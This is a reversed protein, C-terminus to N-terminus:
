KETWPPFNAVFGEPKQLHKIVSLNELLHYQHNPLPLFEIHHRGCLEWPKEQAEVAWVLLRLAQQSCGETLNSFCLPSSPNQVAATPTTNAARCCDAQNCRWVLTGEFGEGGWRGNQGSLPGRVSHNPYPVPLCVFPDVTTGDAGRTCCISCMSMQVGSYQGSVYGVGRYPRVGWLIAETVLYAKYQPRYQTICTERPCQNLRCTAEMMKHRVWFASPQSAGAAAQRM